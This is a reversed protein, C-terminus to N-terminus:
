DNDEEAGRVLIAIQKRSVRIGPCHRPSMPTILCAMEQWRGIDEGM